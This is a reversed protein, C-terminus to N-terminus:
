PEYTYVGTGLTDPEDHNSAAFISSVAIGCVLLSIIVLNFVMRKM